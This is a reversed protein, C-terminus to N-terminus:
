SGIAEGIFQQLLLVPIEEGDTWDKMAVGVIWCNDQSTHAIGAGGTTAMVRQHRSGAGSMKLYTIGSYRVDVPDDAEFSTKGNLGADGSVGLPFETTPDTSVKVQQAGTGATVIRYPNIAAEAYGPMELIDREGTICETYAM